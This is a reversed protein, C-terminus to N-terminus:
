DWSNDKKLWDIDKERREITPRFYIGYKNRITFLIHRKNKFDNDNYVFKGIKRGSAERIVIEIILGERKYNLNPMKDVLSYLM